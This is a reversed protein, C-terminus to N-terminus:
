PWTLEVAGTLTVTHAADDVGDVTFRVDDVTFSDGTRVTRLAGGAVITAGGNTVETFRLHKGKVSVTAPATVKSTETPGKLRLDSSCAASGLLAASLAVAVAVTRGARPAPPNM